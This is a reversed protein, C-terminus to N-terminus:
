FRVRIVLEDENEELFDEWDDPDHYFDSWQYTKKGVVLEIDDPFFSFRINNWLRENNSLEDWKYQIDVAYKDALRKHLM